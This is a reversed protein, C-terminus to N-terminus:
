RMRPLITHASICDRIEPWSWTTDAPLGMQIPYNTGYYGRQDRFRPSLSATTASGYSSTLHEIFASGSPASLSGIIPWYLSTVTWGGHNDVEMDFALEPGNM